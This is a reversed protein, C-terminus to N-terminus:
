LVIEIESKKKSPKSPGLKVGGFPIFSSTDGPGRITGNVMILSCWAKGMDEEHVFTVAELAHQM